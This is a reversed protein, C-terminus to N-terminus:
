GDKDRPIQEYGFLVGLSKRLTSRGANNGKFHQHYDRTRLSGGAIGTYIVELGIFSPLVPKISVSPLTANEKLCILYIGPANEVKSESDTQPDFRNKEMADFVSVVDPSESTSPKLKEVQQTQERTITRPEPAQAQHGGIVKIDGCRILEEFGEVTYGSSPPNFDTYYFRIKRIKNRIGKQQTSSTQLKERILRKIEKVESPTFTKRGNM